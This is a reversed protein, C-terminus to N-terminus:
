RSASRTLEDDIIQALVDYAVAGGPVFRGNVFLAPTGTVGAADGARTDAQIEAAHMNSDLCENFSDADMGLEAAAAKLDDVELADQHAYMRDHLEWFKGQDRACLAAEAAKAALPHIDNLPYERFVLRVKGAYSVLAKEVTPELNGCYPCEFDGFEVITVPADAPGRSPSDPSDVSVRLPELLIRVNYKDRLAATYASLAQQQRQQTLYQEIRGSLEEKTGSIQDKNQEYFADVDADTPAVVKPVVEQRMLDQVSMGQAKAEMGLLQNSLYSALGSELLDQQQQRLQMLQPALYAELEARTVKQDGITAVPEGAQGSAGASTSVQAVATCCLLALVAASASAIGRCSHRAAIRIIAVM